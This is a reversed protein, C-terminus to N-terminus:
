LVRQLIFSISWLASNMIEKAHEEQKV